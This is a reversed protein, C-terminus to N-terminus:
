KAQDRQGARRQARFHQELIPVAYSTLAAYGRPTIHSGDPQSYEPRRRGASDMLVSHLDLLLAGDEAAVERLWGNLSAVHRNIQDQYSSKGRLWSTWSSLTDRWGGTGGIPVETALIPEIGAARARRLMERFSARARAVAVDVAGESANFLDNVHGWILVAEPRERVVDRDFREALQWTQQGGVGKNVVTRGAIPPLSWAAAYSAGLVIISKQTAESM